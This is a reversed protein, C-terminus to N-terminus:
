PWIDLEPEMRSDADGKIGIWYYYQNEVRAFDASPRITREFTNEKGFGPEARPSFDGDETFPTEPASEPVRKYVHFELPASRGCLNVVRWIVKRGPFAIHTDPGAVVKCQAGVPFLVVLAHRDRAAYSAGAPAPRAHACAATGAAMLVAWTGATRQRM